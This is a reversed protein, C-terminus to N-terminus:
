SFVVISFYNVKTFDIERLSIKHTYIYINKAADVVIICALTKVRAVFKRPSGM